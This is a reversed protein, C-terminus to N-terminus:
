GSVFLTIALLQCPKDLLRLCNRGLVIVSDYQVMEVRESKKDLLLFEVQNNEEQDNPIGVAKGKPQVLM